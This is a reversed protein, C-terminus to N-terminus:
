NAKSAGYKEKLYENMEDHPLFNDCSMGILYTQITPQIVQSLEIAEKMSFHVAHSKDWLLSDLILIDTPPLKKQIYELTEPVMRSIDSLYVVNLPKSSSEPGPQVTFSFGHSILDDGHWVPLPTFKFGNIAEEQYDEFITVDFSAVNRTVKPRNKDQEPMISEGSVKPLLWPFQSQLNLHCFESLYLPTGKRVYKGDVKKSQQFGRVDDLGAAADMHHHTLIIADLSEVNHIPFWRLATERFTKGVDIIVNKYDKTQEDYHHILLCPNNRYNRNSKPDGGELALHSIKCSTPDPRESKKATPKTCDGKFKMACLPKPCGTSSGTGLFLLHPREDSNKPKKFFGTFSGVGLCQTTTAQTMSPVLNCIRQAGTNIVDENDVFFNTQGENTVYYLYSAAVSSAVAAGSFLASPKRFQRQFSRRFSDM